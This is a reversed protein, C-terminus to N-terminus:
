ALVESARSSSTAFSNPLPEASDFRGDLRAVAATDSARIRPRQCRREPRITM